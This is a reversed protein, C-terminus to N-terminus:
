KGRQIQANNIHHAVPQFKDTGPGHTHRNIRGNFFQPIAPIKAACGGYGRETKGALQRSKIHLPAIGHGKIGRSIQAKVTAYVTGAIIVKGNFTQKDIVRFRIVLLQTQIHRDAPIHKILALLLLHQINGNIRGIIGLRPPPQETNAPQIQFVITQVKSHAFVIIRYRQILPFGATHLDSAQGGHTTLLHMHTKIHPEIPCSGSGAIHFQCHQIARAGIAANGQIIKNIHHVSHQVRWLENNICSGGQRIDAQEPHNGIAHSKRFGLRGIAAGNTGTNLEAQIIGIRLHGTIFAPM